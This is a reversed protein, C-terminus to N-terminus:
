SYYKIKGYIEFIKLYCLTTKEFSFYNIFLFNNVKINYRYFNYLEGSFKFKLGTFIKDQINKFIYFFNELKACQLVTLKLIYYTISFHEWSTKHVHPSKLTSYNTIKKNSDLLILKLKLKKILKHTKLFVLFQKIKKKDVSILRINLTM